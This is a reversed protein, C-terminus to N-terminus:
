REHDIRIEYRFSDICTAIPRGDELAPAYRWRALVEPIARDLRPHAGRLITASTVKGTESVCIRVLARFRAGSRALDRPVRVRYPDVQPDILLRPKVVTVGVGRARVAAVGAGPAAVSAPPAAPDAAPSPAVPAPAPAPPSEAPPRSEEWLHFAAAAGVGFGAVALLAAAQFLIRRGLWGTAPTARLTALVRADAAADLPPPERMARITAGARAALDDSDGAHERLRKAIPEASM